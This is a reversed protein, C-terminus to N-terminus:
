LKLWLIFLMWTLFEYFEYFLLNIIIPVFRRARCLRMAQVAMSISLYWYPCPAYKVIIQIDELLDTAPVLFCSGVSTLQIYIIEIVHNARELPGLQTSTKEGKM